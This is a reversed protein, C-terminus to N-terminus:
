SAFSVLLAHVARLKTEDLRDILCFCEDKICLVPLPKGEAYEDFDKVTYGYSEIMHQLRERSVDMRGQEYHSIASDSIGNRRGAERMSIRRSMRMFRLIKSTSTIRKQQSRKPKKM